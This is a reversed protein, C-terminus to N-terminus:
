GIALGGGCSRGLHDLQMNLRYSHMCTPLRLLVGQEPFVTAAMFPAAFGFLSSNYYYFVNGLLCGIRLRM